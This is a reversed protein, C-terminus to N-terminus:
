SGCASPVITNNDLTVLVWMPPAIIKVGQAVLNEMLNEM